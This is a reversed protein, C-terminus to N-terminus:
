KSISEGNTLNVIGKLDSMLATKIAKALELTTVGGWYAETFGNVPTSQNLFWHLLGEGNTKLEPGIISTRITLDRDNNLEGLAKSRGYTDNADCFDDETYAGRNGSFVCDTSIHILKSGLEE